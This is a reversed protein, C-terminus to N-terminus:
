LDLLKRPHLGNVQGMLLSHISYGVLERLPEPLERAGEIGLAIMFNEQQRAWGASYQLSIGLRSQNSRNAGGAHVTTGLYLILSGPPAEIPVTELENTIDTTGWLHSGPCVVTAGNEATFEDIAWLTSISV